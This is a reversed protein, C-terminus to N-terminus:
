GLGRKRGKETIRYRSYLRGKGAKEHAAQEQKSPEQLELWGFKVPRRLTNRVKVTGKERPWLQKQLEHLPKGERPGKDSWLAKILKLEVPSLDAFKLETRPPKGRRGARGNAKAAKKAPTAKAKTAKRARKPAPPPTVDPATDIQNETDTRMDDEPQM